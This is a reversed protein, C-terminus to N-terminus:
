PQPGQLQQIFGLRDIVQWHGRAKGDEILYFTQGAFSLRKGTAPLGRLDGLHTGAAKWIVAVRKNEQILQEIDFVLDPFARRSHLLRERYASRDLTQGEWADGPDSFITYKEAILSDLGTLDDQSWTAYLKRIVDSGMPEGRHMITAVVRKKTDHTRSNARRGTVSGRYRLFSGRLKFSAFEV